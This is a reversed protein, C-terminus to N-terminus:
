QRSCHLGRRRQRGAPYDVFVITEIYGAIRVFGAVAHRSGGSM